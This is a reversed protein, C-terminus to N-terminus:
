PLHLLCGASDHSSELGWTAPGKSDPGGPPLAYTVELECQPQPLLPGERRGEEGKAPQLPASLMCM